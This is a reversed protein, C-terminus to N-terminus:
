LEGPSRCWRRVVPINMARGTRSRRNNKGVRTRRKNLHDSHELYEAPLAAGVDVELENMHEGFDLRALFPRLDPESDGLGLVAEVVCIRRDRPAASPRCSTVLFTFFALSEACAESRSCADISCHM